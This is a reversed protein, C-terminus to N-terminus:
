RKEHNSHITIVVSTGAPNGSDDYLDDIAATMKGLGLKGFLAFSQEMAQMGMGTDDGNRNAAAKRGVGNDRIEVSLPDTGKIRIVLLGKKQLPLIGHKLANEVYVQLMMKPVEAHIDVAPDIDILYEFREGFRFKELALYNETFGIEEKLSRRTRDSDLLLSRHLASFHMLQAKADGSNIATIGAIVSNVANMTFHPDLQNRVIRLQLDTIKQEAETKQRIQIQQFKRVLVTFLLLGAYLLVYKGFRLPWAKNYAYALLTYRNGFQIYLLPDTGKREALSFLPTQQGDGEITATVPHKLDHRFLTVAKKRMDTAIIEDVGDRDADLLSLHTSSAFPLHKLATFSEDALILSVNRRNILFRSHGKKDKMVIVESPNESAIRNSVLSGSMDFLVIRSPLAKNLPPLYLAGALSKGSASKLAFPRLESYEGHFPVPPFVFNLQKDLVMMWSISDPYPLLTDYVNCAAYGVPIIEKARDGTIDAQILHNFFYGSVPSQLFTDRVADFAFVRRPQLSYGTGIGFVLEGFGDGTLDDM